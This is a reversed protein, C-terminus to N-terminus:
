IYRSLYIVSSIRGGAGYKFISRKMRNGKTCRGIDDYKLNLFPDISNRMIFQTENLRSRAHIHYVNIYVTLRENYIYM